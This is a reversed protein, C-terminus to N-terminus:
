HAADRDYINVDSSVPTPEPATAPRARPLPVASPLTASAQVMTGPALTRQPMTAQPMAVQAMTGQAITGQAVTGQAVTGQAMAIMKPRHPPLPIRGTLPAVAPLDDTATGASPEQAALAPGTAAASPMAPPIPWVIGRDSVAPPAAAATRDPADQKVAMPSVTSPGAPLAVAITPSAPAAMQTAPVLPGADATQTQDSDSLKKIQLLPTRVDTTTTQADAVQAAAAPAQAEPPASDSVQPAAVANDQPEAVTMRQFTPAKPPAVYSRVFTTITWLVVPVAVIVAVLIIIRQLVPTYLRIDDDYERM